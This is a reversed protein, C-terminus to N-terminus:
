KWGLIASFIVWEISKDSLWLFIAMVLVFGFVVLTTQTAEKRTPWVVKRVEKYSDKAFAVLSKGPASMLGVAVGAIIGVALAAGRVYWQQNALWFFGVFGALVLLVGLALMLKDGSTNVTEVSPNAM